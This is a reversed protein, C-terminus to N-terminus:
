STSGGSRLVESGSGIEAGPSNIMVLGRVPMGDIRFKKRVLVVGTYKTLAVANM